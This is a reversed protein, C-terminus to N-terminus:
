LGVVLVLLRPISSCIANTPLITWPSNDPSSFVTSIDRSFVNDWQGPYIKPHPIKVPSIDRPSNDLQLTRIRM